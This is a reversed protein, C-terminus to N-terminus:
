LTDFRKKPKKPPEYTADAGRDDELVSERVSVLDSSPVFNDFINDRPAAM